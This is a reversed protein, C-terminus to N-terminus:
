PSWVWKSRCPSHERWRSQMTYQQSRATSSLVSFDGLCIHISPQPPPPVPLYQLYLRACCVASCISLYESCLSVAPPIPLYIRHASRYGSHTFPCCSLAPQLPFTHTPCRLANTRHRSQPAAASGVDCLRKPWRQPARPDGGPKQTGFAAARVRTRTVQHKPAPLQLARVVLGLRLVPATSSNTAAPSHV